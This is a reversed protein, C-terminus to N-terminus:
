PRAGAPVIEAGQRAAVQGPAGNWDHFTGRYLAHVVRLFYAAAPVAVWATLLGHSDVLYKGNLGYYGYVVHMVTCTVFVLTLGLGSVSWGGLPRRNGLQTRVLYYAIASYLAVLLVNPLIAGLHSVDVAGGQIMVAAMATLYVAVITPLALVWGPSGAVFRDGRGGRFAELRLLFWVAGAPLGVLVAVLDLGGGARGEFGVHVGHVLHHPGCTFALAVFAAGFHSFGMARRDRILEILVITGILLYIVGLLINLAGISANM